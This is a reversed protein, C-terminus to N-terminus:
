SGDPAPLRTSVCQVGTLGAAPTAVTQCALARGTSPDHFWATSLSGSASVGVPQYSPNARIQSEASPLALLLLLAAGAGTALAAVSFRKM